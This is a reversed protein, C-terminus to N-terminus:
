ARYKQSEGLSAEGTKREGGGADTNAVVKPPVSKLAPIRSITKRRKSQVASAGKKEGQSELQNPV